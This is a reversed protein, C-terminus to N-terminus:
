SRNGYDRFYLVSGSYISFSVLRKHVCQAPQPSKLDLVLSELLLLTREIYFLIYIQSLRDSLKPSVLKCTELAENWDEDEMPGVDREWSPKLNYALVTASPTLLMNYFDSILRRPDSGKIM